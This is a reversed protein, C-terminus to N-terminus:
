SESFYVKFYIVSGPGEEIRASSELMSNTRKRVSRGYKLLKMIRQEISM